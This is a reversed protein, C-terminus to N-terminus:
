QAASYKANAADWAPIRRGLLEYLEENAANYHQALARLTERSPRAKWPQRDVRRILRRLPRHLWGKLHYRSLLEMRSLRSENRHGASLDFQVDTNIDLHRCVRALGAAPDSVVDEEFIMIEVAERPFVELYPEIMQAYMGQELVGHGALEDRANGALLDDLTLRPSIRGSQIIHNVASIARDVPNRLIIIIRADPLAERIRLHSNAVHGEAGSMNTWLYDPTKEGIAIRVSGPDFHSAYWALGRAYNEAKDFFHIENQPIFVDPHQGLMSALWTTGAKQAGIILFNPLVM